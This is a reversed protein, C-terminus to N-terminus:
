EQIVRRIPLQYFNLEDSDQELLYHGEYWRPDYRPSSHGPVRKQTALLRLTQALEALVNSGGEVFLEDEVVRFFVNGSKRQVCISRLRPDDDFAALNSSHLSVRQPGGLQAAELARSLLMLGESNGAVCHTHEDYSCGELVGSLGKIAKSM